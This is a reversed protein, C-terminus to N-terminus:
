MLESIKRVPSYFGLRIMDDLIDDAAEATIKEDLALRRLIGLTGTFPVKHEKACNRAAKDDTVVIGGRTRASVITSAEGSGLTKLLGTYQEREEKKLAATSFREQTVLDVITGLSEYGAAIGQAIEDLVESTLVAKKGYREVLLHSTDSLAFNSLVVSNFFYRAKPRPM